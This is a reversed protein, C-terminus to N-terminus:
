HQKLLIMVQSQLESLSTISAHTEGAFNILNQIYISMEGGFAQIPLNKTSALRHRGYEDEFERSKAAAKHLISDPIGAIRAVNVGYSKPCSGPMLRHLFTVEEVGSAGAGVRCAMHCLAVSPDAKYDVALRHYHTSFMGRCRIKRVFHELVSEAIAQGDSTSTGRGLEDLAVLSHRTACTLMSATESLETLFTSQGAMIHDKAGMRVFIRDVLSLEFREAPVDAGIQALVVALCVQRLLTSKGGMNPGTLLIFSAHGSGGVTIDNPVFPGKGLSDSLLTPHGLSRATLHPVENENSADSIIPRCTPGEYSDSVIALSILVDLEAVASVLHKWRMHHECFKGILKQLISKLKTEKESEVHSLERVMEKIQPTWYRYFGKKSSKLEYEKPISGCLAEPVELLYSDKGVTVYTISSIGLIKRQEQLHKKLSDEVETIRQYASDYELDVGQCPIIRGTSNAEAWDFADKFYKLVSVLDPFGKGPVLLRHLLTSDTSNLISGLSSCAQSVLECGHLASIFEQLQKRSADEYLIVKNSHRGNAERELDPLKTLEKRFELALLLNNREKFSAVADQREKILGSHYLPRALWAKLLRKGSATVCHNLRAYLTGTSEGNRSNELIELNELASADLTMYPKQFVDKFGSCPLLDYKAYRLLAEDLFAQRLYFLAGGLASLAFSGSERMGLLEELADPLCEEATMSPNKINSYFMRVEEITRNADWFESGPLLENVLPNRTYRTLVKETEQSLLKAPKIIEVPKIESLLCSLTSSEADDEIQGIMIRSTAVDVICVGYFREEKQQSPSPYSETIAMIYSADPNLCMIEGETLTGKTIVACIERKVVKDRSGDKKRRIDLQEPTETQEVVLVRYGKRALKEVNVSFNKEPFGCHPQEGKMYQLDLEKVGVHADMEFLEYFKGMKFFLVKDMHKSKFDWWQRQGSSLGKVFNSPLFLTRPDYNEDGPCRRNADRRDRGLFPMKEAERSGFRELADDNIGNLITTGTAIEEDTPNNNAIKTLNGIEGIGGGEKQKKASTVKEKESAKRKRADKKKLPSAKVEEEEELEMDELCDEVDGAEANKCWDEDDSDDRETVKEEEEEENVVLVRRLRKFKKVSGELWEIKEKSLDLLEEEGDEYQILHKGSMKNFSKVCGEYWSKDLPWYVRIRKNIVEDGYLEKDNESAAVSPSASPQEGIVLLPRTSNTKPKSRENLPSPTNPSPSSNPNTVAKSNLKSISYTVNPSPSPKSPPPQSPSKSQSAITFFSTIQRQPNVLPSRGNSQRRSSMPPDPSESIKSSRLQSHRLPPRPNPTVSLPTLLLFRPSNAPSKVPFNEPFISAHRSTKNLEPFNIYTQWKA